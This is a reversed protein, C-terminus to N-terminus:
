LEKVKRSVGNIYGLSKDVRNFVKFNKTLCLDVIPFWMRFFDVQPTNLLHRIVPEMLAKDDPAMDDLYNIAQEVAADQGHQETIEEIKDNLDKKIQDIKM